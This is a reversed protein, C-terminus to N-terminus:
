HKKNKSDIFDSIIQVTKELEINEVVLDFHEKYSREFMGRSLRVNIREESEGRKRLRQRLEEDAVELFISIMEVKGQLYKRVNLMGKVDIDKIYDNEKDNIPLEFAKKLTGYFFGHVNEYEIFIDKKIGDQFEGDTMYVYTQYNKDEERKERTTASARQLLFLNKRKKMLNMMVTSKGSGSAGSIAIFM